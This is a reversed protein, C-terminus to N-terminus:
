KKNQTKKHGKKHGKKHKKSKTSKKKKQQQKKKKTKSIAIEDYQFGGRLSRKNAQPISNPRRTMDAYTPRPKQTLPQNPIPQQSQTSNSGNTPGNTPGNNGTGSDDKVIESLEKITNDLESIDLNTVSSIQTQLAQLKEELKELGETKSILKQINTTQTSMTTFRKKLADKQKTLDGIRSKIIKVKEEILKNQDGNKQILENALNKLKEVRNIANDLTSM